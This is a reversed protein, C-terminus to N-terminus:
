LDELKFKKIEELETMFTAKYEYDNQKEIWANFDTTLQSYEYQYLENLEPVLLAPDIQVLRKLLPVAHNKKYEKRWADSKYKKIEMAILKMEWAADNQYKKLRKRQVDRSKELIELQRALVDNAVKANSICGIYKSIAKCQKDFGKIQDTYNMESSEAPEVGLRNVYACIKEAKIEDAAVSSDQVLKDLKAFEAACAKVINTPQGSLDLGYLAQVAQQALAVPQLVATAGLASLVDALETEGSIKKKGAQALEHKVQKAHRRVREDADAVLCILEASACDTRYGDTEGDLSILERLVEVRRGAVKRAEADFAVVLRNESLQRKLEAIRASNDGPEETADDRVELGAIGARLDKVMKALDEFCEAPAEDLCYSLMAQYEQVLGDVMGSQEVAHRMSRIYKLESPNKRIAIQLYLLAVENTPDAQYLSFAAEADKAKAARTNERELLTKCDKILCALMALNVAVAAVLLAKLSKKM